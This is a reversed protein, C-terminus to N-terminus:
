CAARNSYLPGEDANWHWVCTASVSLLSWRCPEANVILPLLWEQLNASIVVSNKCRSVRGVWLNWLLHPSQYRAKGDATWDCVPSLYCFLPSNPLNPPSLSRSHFCRSFFLGVSRPHLTHSFAPVRWISEECIFVHQDSHHWTKFLESLHCPFMHQQLLQLWFCRFLSVLVWFLSACM